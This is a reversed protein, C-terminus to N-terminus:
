PGAPLGGFAIHESTRLFPNKIMHKISIQSPIQNFGEADGYIFVKSVCTLNERVNDPGINWEVKGPTYVM